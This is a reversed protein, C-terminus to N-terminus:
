LYQCFKSIKYLIMIKNNLSIYRLIGPLFNIIFPYLLGVMFSIFTNKILYFQSNKYVAGFSSLYYWFLVIFIISAIFFIIYKIVIKRKVKKVKNTANEYIKEKKIEIINRESLFIYKIITSLFYAIIFCYLIQPLFFALNYSGGDEYIRHITKQNFFM